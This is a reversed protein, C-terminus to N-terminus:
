GLAVSYKNAKNQRYKQIKKVYADIEKGLLLKAVEEDINAIIIPM